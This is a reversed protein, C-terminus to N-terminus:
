APRLDGTFAVRSPLSGAPGAPGQPGRPGAPGVSRLAATLAAQTKPGWVGDVTGPDFGASKCAAQIGKVVESMDDVGWPRTDAEQASTYRASFHAHETHPNPGTYPRWTWGWSRSAIRRNRIVIQLRDDKELRHREVIALVTRDFWGADPWPGSDDVDLAHVEDVNDADEYPTRGTEDPNHDSSERRHAADGLWGDSAKDRNLSVANFEARLAVLCPVLVAM